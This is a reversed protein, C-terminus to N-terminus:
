EISTALEPISELEVSEIKQFRQSIKQASISVEQVDNHAQTMHRALNDMRQQFRSFDKSLITLHEQILHVQQRTAADKLVARATTLVAMLTTPSVLWVHRQQALEVLDPYHAHIEAFVAEAPIFMMAGDTTEGPIIYKSAIDQIHKKIDIRFQQEADQRLTDTIDRRTMTQYSELPFKADIPVNGTPEPLLVLCDVRCGNSFTHQLQFHAEPLTNHLLASLQVEGFAGRSRKDALIEQLTVVNTSLETIKKQAEDILALRKIVDTFTATTKEFGEALRSNVHGSIEQLKTETHQTLTTMRTSLEQQYSQLHEILQQRHHTSTENFAEHLWRLINRSSEANQERFSTWEKLQHQQLEHFANLISHRDHHLPQLQTIIETKTVLWKEDSIRFLTLLRQFCFYGLGLLILNAGLSLLLSLQNM